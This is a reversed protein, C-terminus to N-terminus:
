AASLTREAKYKARLAATAPLDVAFGASGMVVGYEARAREVSVLGNIVDNRVADVDREMPDGVGGGGPPFSNYVDGPKLTTLSHAALVQREGNQRIVYRKYVREKDGPSGGALLSPPCFQVGEGISSLVTEHGVPEIAYRGGLGGRWKGPCASDTELEYFHTHIPYEHEMLEIDGTLMAGSTAVTGQCHWGDLGASAGGGGMLGPVASFVYVESTRPDPASWISFCMHSSGAVARDPRVKSLADRVAEVISDFPTTTSMSTAAPEAANLMSGKPGFDLKIPRYTGANRPMEPDVYTMLGLLIGSATTAYYANFYSKLQPRSEMRVEMESGKVAITCKLESPGSGHGDDEVWSHGQYVGDPMAEIERRMRMEGADLIQEICAVVTEKGYKALLDELRRAALNVAAVQARIDGRTHRSTRVSGVLMDLIDRRLKGSEYIKIPSIRFGEAYTDEALPNYGGPVAGGTDSLHANNVAWFVVEDEWFIPKYACCDSKHTGGTAPCNHYYIDGPYAEQKFYEAVSVISAQMAGLHVPIDDGQMLQRRNFDFIANSYDRALKLVPSKSTRDITIGMERTVSKLTGNVVAVTVPDFKKCDGM